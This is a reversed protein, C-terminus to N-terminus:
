FMHNCCNTHFWFIQYSHYMTDCIIFIPNCIARNDTTIEDYKINITLDLVEIILFDISIATFPLLEFLETPVLAITNKM